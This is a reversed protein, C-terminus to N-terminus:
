VTPALVEHVPLPLRQQRLLSASQEYFQPCRTELGSERCLEARCPAPTPARFLRPTLGSVEM